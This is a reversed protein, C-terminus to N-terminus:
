ENDSKTSAPTIVIAPGPELENGSEVTSKQDGSLVIGGDGDQAGGSPDSQAEHAEANVALEANVLEMITAASWDSNFMSITAGWTVLEEVRQQTAEAGYLNVWMERGPVLYDALLNPAQLDASEIWVPVHMLLIDSCLPEAVFFTDPRLSRLNELWELAHWPAMLEFADLGFGSANAGFAIGKFEKRMAKRQDSNLTDFLETQPDDWVDAYKASNGWWFYLDIDAQNFRDWEDVTNKLKNNWCSSMQPPFNNQTNQQYMGSPCRAMFREYARATAFELSDTVQQQWGFLDPRLTTEFGKPNDAALWATDSLNINGVPRLDQVYDPQNGYMAWLYDRYPELTHIWDQPQNYRVTVTYTQTENANIKGHLWYVGYWVDQLEDRKFTMRVHRQYEMAPYLMSFGIAKESDRVVMVPAFLVEPYKEEICSVGSHDSDDFEAFSCGFRHDLFEIVDEAMLHGDVFLIPKDQKISTPNHIVYTIDYGTPQPTVLTTVNCATNEDFLPRGTTKVQGLTPTSATFSGGGSVLSIPLEVAPPDFVRMWVQTLGTPEGGRALSTAMMAFMGASAIKVRSVDCMRMTLEEHVVVILCPVAGGVKGCDL